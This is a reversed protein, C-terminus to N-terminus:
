SYCTGPIALSRLFRECLQWYPCLLAHRSRELGPSLGLLRRGVVQASPYHLEVDGSLRTCAGHKSLCSLSTFEVSSGQKDRDSKHSSSKWGLSRARSHCHGRNSPSSSSSTLYKGNTLPVVILPQLQVRSCRGYLDVVAYCTKPVKLPPQPIPEGNVYFQLTGSPRCLMGVTGGPKLNLLDVSPDHLQLKEQLLNQLM